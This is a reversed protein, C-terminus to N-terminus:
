AHVIIAKDGQARPATQHILYTRALHKRSQTHQVACCRGPFTLSFINDFLLLYLKTDLFQKQQQHHHQNISQNTSKHHTSKQYDACVASERQKSTKTKAFFVYVCVAFVSIKTNSLVVNKPHNKKLKIILVCM